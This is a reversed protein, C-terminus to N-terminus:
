VNYTTPAIMVAVDDTARRTKSFSASMRLGIVALVDGHENVLLPWTERATDPIKADIFIRSVKKTGSMGLPRMRDGDKKTRIQLLQGLDSRNAYYTQANEVFLDNSILRVCVRMQNPVTLWENLQVNASFAEAQTKVAM